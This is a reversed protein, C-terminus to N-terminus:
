RRSIFYLPHGVDKIFDVTGGKWQEGKCYPHSRFLVKDGSKPPKRKYKLKIVTMAMTGIKANVVVLIGGIQTCIALVHRSRVRICVRKQTLFERDFGIYDIGGPCEKFITQGVSVIWVALHSTIIHYSLGHGVGTAYSRKKPRVPVTAIAHCTRTLHTSYIM